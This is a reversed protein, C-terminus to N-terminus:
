VNLKYNLGYKQKALKLLDNVLKKNYNIGFKRSYLYKEKEIEGPLYIKNNYKKMKKGLKIKKQFFTIQRNIYNNKILM